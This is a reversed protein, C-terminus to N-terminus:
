RSPSWNQLKKIRTDINPHFLNEFFTGLLTAETGTEQLLNDKLQKFKTLVNALPKGDELLEASFRDARFEVRHMIARMVFAGAITGVTAAALYKAVRFLGSHLKQEPTGAKNAETDAHRLAEPTLSEEPTSVRKNKQNKQYTEVLAFAAIGVALGVWPSLAAFKASRAFDNHKIHGLEHAIVASLEETVPQNLDHHGLLSRIKGGLFLDGKGGMAALYEYMVRMPKPLMSVDKLIHISPTEVGAKVSLRHVEDFLHPAKERGIKEYYSLNIKLM